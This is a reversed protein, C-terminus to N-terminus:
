ASPPRVEQVELEPQSEHHESESKFKSSSKTLASIITQIVTVVTPGYKEIASILASVDFKEVHEALIEAFHPQQTGTAVTWGTPLLVLNMSPIYLGVPLPSPVGYIGTPVTVTKATADWIIEMDTSPTPKPGPPAPPPVPIPTPAPNPVPINGGMSDFDQILQDWAIQNPAVQKAKDLWDPTVLVYLEGNQTATFYEMAADTVTGTLGWTDPCLGPNKPDMDYDLFPICHGNNWDSNGAVDWIFGNAQPMGRGVWYDPLGVGGYLNGFLHILQRCLQVNSADVALYGLLKVGMQDGNKLWWNLATPIDCGNDTRATGNYGGIHGYDNVIQQDTAIQETGTLSTAQCKIHYYASIVCCGLRDNMFVKSLGSSKLTYGLPGAPAPPLDALHYNSFKLLKAKTEEPAPKCGLKVNVQLHEAYVEKVPM